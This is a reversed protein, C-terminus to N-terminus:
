FDNFLAFVCVCSCKIYAGMEVLSSSRSARMLEKANTIELWENHASFFFSSFLNWFLLTFASSNQERNDWWNCEIDGVWLLQKPTRPSLFHLLFCFGSSFFRLLLSFCLLYLLFLITSVHEELIWNCPASLSYFHLKNANQSKNEGFLQALLPECM